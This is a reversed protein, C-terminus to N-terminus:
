QGTLPRYTLRRGEAGDVMKQLRATDSLKRTSYRFDFEALYRPLHETSVHHHTGDLSRKLQSFYGEAHNSTIVREGEYRVYEFHSHDVAEHAEFEHAISKYPGSADTHLTTNPMDVHEAIAKRLSAGTVNPVVVSRVEGTEHSVLSLVPTKDGPVGARGRGGVKGPTQGQRHRNSLKGGIYTEDAVVVGRLMGALPDRKMSERLRHLMFWATEPTVGILREVERASIGNKASCMLVMVTLWDALAVKTGHFITGTLVSFQKRCKACKWVRRVSQTRKGDAKPKGTGRTGTESKPKLFYAKENGCHPCTLRERDKGWRLEELMVYADSEDTVRNRLEKLTLKV